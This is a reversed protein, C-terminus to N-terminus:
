KLPPPTGYGYFSTKGGPKPLSFDFVSVGCRRQGAYSRGDSAGFLVHEGSVKHKGLYLMVHTIPLKRSQPADTSSWFLLDGPKLGAFIPDTLSKPSSTRTWDGHQIIWEAMENSQRPIDKHQQNQFLHYITGSCDMGGSKPDHSHFLYTLNLRTLALAASLRKQIEPSLTSFEELDTTELTAVAAKPPRPKDKEPASQAWLNGFPLLAAALALNCVLRRQALM